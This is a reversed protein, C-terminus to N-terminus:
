WKLQAYQLLQFMILNSYIKLISENIFPMMIKIKKKIENNILITSEDIINDMKSYNMKKKFEFIHSPLINSKLKSINLKDDFTYYICYYKNNLKFVNKFLISDNKKSPNIMQANYLPYVKITNINEILQKIYNGYNKNNVKEQYYQEKSYVIQYYLRYDSEKNYVIRKIKKNKTVLKNFYFRYFSQEQIDYYEVLNNTSNFFLADKVNLQDVTNM